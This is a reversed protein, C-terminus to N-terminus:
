DRSDVEESGQYRRSPLSFRLGLYYNRGPALNYYRGAAANIDNGLSYRTDLLNDAGAFAELLKGIRSNIRASLLQFPAAKDTNADNLWIPDSYQYAVSLRQGTRYNLDIGANLQQRAVGPIHNGSFENDVQKFNRYRFSYLSYSLWPQVALSPTQLVPYKVSAEIGKQRTDGANEFYDAGNDDRRQVIADRLKFYFANLEFWGKRRFLNGRLGLEHNWGWEAQLATNIINNSPLLESTTPPSFGKAYLAYVSINGIQKLLSLRPAWEGRYNSQLLLQPNETERRIDVRNRNWSIEGTLQWKRPLLWEVRSFVFANQPQVADRTQTTDPQGDRNGFVDVRFRGQQYEGGATLRVSTAGAPILYGIVGRAGAHPETRKEVNRISPNEVDAYAGYISFAIDLHEVPRWQQELATFFLRQRIAAKAAAASPFVGAAPRSQRPDAAFQSANLGGPTEYWLDSYIVRLSLSSKERKRLNAEWSIADRRMATQDRYGDSQQHQFLIRNQLDGSGFGIAADVQHLGYSGVMYQLSLLDSATDPLSLIVGGTGAGYHSGSPGKLIELNGLFSLPLNNLYTNGGPDTFPTQSLYFRINRVGFPSRLSSGRMALRYSGPSREEMRVGPVTNIAPLASAPSFKKWDNSRVLGTGAALERLRSSHSFAQVTVSDLVDQARLGAGTLILLGIALLFKWQM